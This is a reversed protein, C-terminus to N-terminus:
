EDQKFSLKYEKLKQEVESLSKKGFNKIKSMESATREVLDGVTNIGARKLCNFSRLSLDMDEINISLQKSMDVEDQVEEVEEHLSYNPLETFLDLYRMLISAGMATVEQPTMTGNTWVELILRDYDTIQGVRYNEVSFNVKEVPTFSADIAITGIPDEDSKHQEAISYGKGSMVQMEMNIRGTDGLTLIYHDKNVIEVAADEFIDGATVVKPGDIELTLTAPEQSYKKLAIGKLNLIIESIDELAGPITSFEHYTGMINIKSIAAGPLTSLLVRRLSNGLTTGYGRDLPYMAFKAYNDEEVIDLIEIRTNLEEPM